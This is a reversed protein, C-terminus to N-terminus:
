LPTPLPTVVGRGGGARGRALARLTTLVPFVFLLYLDIFLWFIPGGVGGYRVICVIFFYGVSPRMKLCFCHVQNPLLLATDYLLATGPYVCSHLTQPLFHLLFLHLVFKYVFATSKIPRLLEADCAICNIRCMLYVYVHFFALECLVHLDLFIFIYM